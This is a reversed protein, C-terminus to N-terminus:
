NNGYDVIEIGEPLEAEEAAEAVGDTQKIKDQVKKKFDPDHYEVIQYVNGKDEEKEVKEKFMGIGKGLWVLANIRAAQTNGPGFEVHAEQWLRDLVEAETYSVRFKNIEQRHELAELIRPDKNLRNVKQKPQKLGPWLQKVISTRSADPDTSILEVYREEEPELRQM